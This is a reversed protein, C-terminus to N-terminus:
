GCRGSPHCVGSCCEFGFSCPSHKPRCSGAQAAAPANISKVLPVALTAAGALALRRLLVRRSTGEPVPIPEVLLGREDLQKLALWVVEQGTAPDNARVCAAALEPVTRTGDCAEWIAAVTPNLAHCRQSRLDYM